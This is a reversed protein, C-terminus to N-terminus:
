GAGIIVYLLHQRRDGSRNDLSLVVRVVFYQISCPPRDGVDPVGIGDVFRYQERKPFGQLM